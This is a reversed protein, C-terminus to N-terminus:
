GGGHKPQEGKWTTPTSYRLVLQPFESIELPRLLKLQVEERQRSWEGFATAVFDVNAAESDIRFVPTTSREDLPMGGEAKIIEPDLGSILSNHAVLRSKNLTVRETYQGFGAVGHPRTTNYWFYLQGIVLDCAAFQATGIVGKRFRAMHISSDVFELAEPAVPYDEVEVDFGHQTLLPVVVEDNQAPWFLVSEDRPVLPYVLEKKRRVWQIIYPLTFQLDASSRFSQYTSWLANGVIEGKEDVWMGDLSWDQREKRIQRFRVESFDANSAQTEEFVRLLWSELNTLDIQECWNVAGLRHIDSTIWGKSVAERYLDQLHAAPVFQSPKNEGRESM